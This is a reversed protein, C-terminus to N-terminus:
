VGAIPFRLNTFGIAKNNSTTWTNSNAGISKVLTITASASNIKAEGPATLITSNDATYWTPVGWTMGSVTAATFPSTLTFTNANSTGANGQYVNIICHGNEISFNYVASAPDASFGTPSGAFTFSAPFGFARDARSLYINSIASNAVTYVSGANLTLTTSAVTKIYFYKTTSNDFKIKDGVQFRTTADTSVTVTSSSAYAWSEDVEIWGNSTETGLNDILDAVDEFDANSTRISDARAM